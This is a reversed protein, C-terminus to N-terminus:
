RDDEVLEWDAGHASEEQGVITRFQETISDDCLSREIGLLTDIPHDCVAADEKSLFMGQFTFSFRGIDGSILGRNQCRRIRKRCKLLPM